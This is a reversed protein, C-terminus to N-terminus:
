RLIPMNRTALVESVADDVAVVLEHVDEPSIDLNVAPATEVAQRDTGAGLSDAITALRRAEAAGLGSMNPVAQLGADLRAVLAGLYRSLRGLQLELHRYRPRQSRHGPEALLTQFALESDALAREADRRSAIVAPTLGTGRAVADFVTELYRGTATISRAFTAPLRHRIWDPWLILAGAIALAIGGITEEIRELAFHWGQGPAHLALLIIVMPTLCAVFFGYSIRVAFTTLFVLVALAIQWIVANDTMGLIAAAVLVGALTGAARILARGRTAGFDPQMVVIVTMPLWMGHPFHWFLEIGTALATVIGLRLAHRFLTTRWSFQHGVAGAMETLRERLALRPLWHDHRGRASAFFDCVAQLENVYLTSKDLVSLAASQAQDADPRSAVCKRLRTRAAEFDPDSHWPRSDILARGAERANRALAVVTADLDARLPQDDALRARIEALGSAFVALRSAIRMVVFLQVLTKNNAPVMARTADLATRANEVAARADREQSRLDDDGGSVAALMRAAADLAAGTERRLALYPRLRWAALALVLAWLCGAFVWGAHVAAVGPSAVTLTGLLFAVSTVLGLTAGRPGIARLLGGSFAILFILVTAIWWPSTAQTGLWYIEPVSLCVVLIGLLRDRYPGAGDALIVQLAGIFFLLGAVPLDAWRLLALPVSLSLVARVSQGIAIQNPPVAFRARWRAGPKASTSSSSSSPSATANNMINACIKFTM